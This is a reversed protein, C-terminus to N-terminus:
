DDLPLAKPLKILYGERVRVIDANRITSWGYNNDSVRGTVGALEYMDAVSVFDFKDIISSMTDLITRAEQYTDVVVDDYNYGIRSRREEYSGHYVRSPRESYARYNTRSGVTRPKRSVGQTGGEPYLIMQIGNTVVDSILDKIAPVLVDMLIYDRVNVMDESIFTDKMRSLDSKKRLKVNGKVVKKVVKEKNEKRNM